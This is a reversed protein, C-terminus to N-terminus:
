QRQIMIIQMMNGPPRNSEEAIGCGSTCDGSAFLMMESSGIVGM